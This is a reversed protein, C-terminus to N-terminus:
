NKNYKLQLEKQRVKFALMRWVKAVFLVSENGLIENLDDVLTQPSCHLSMNAVLYEVMTEEESGLSEKIKKGIFDKLEDILKFQDVLIWNIEFQFLEEPSVPISNIINKPNLKEQIEQENKIEEFNILLNSKKQNHSDEEEDNQHFIDKVSEDQKLQQDSNSEKKEIQIVVKEEEEPFLANKDDEDDSSFYEYYNFKRKRDLSVHHSNSQDSDSGSDSENNLKRKKRRLDHDIEYRKSYKSKLYEEDEEEEEEHSKRKSNLIKYERDKEKNELHKLERDQKRKIRDEEEKLFNFREREKKMIREDNYRSENRKRDEREKEKQVREKERQGELKRFMRISETMLQKKEQVVKEDVEKFQREITNNVAGIESATHLTQLKTSVGQENVFLSIIDNRIQEDEKRDRETDEERAKAITEDDAITPVDSKNGSYLMLMKKVKFERLFSETDQQAKVLLQDGNIDLGNLNRLAKIAGEASKYLCFGYTKFVSTIPDKVRQWSEVTGCAELLKLLFDNNVRPNIKSVFLKTERDGLSSYSQYQPLLQPQYPAKQLVPFPLDSKKEEEKESSTKLLSPIVVKPIVPAKYPADFKKFSDLPIFKLNSAGKGDM